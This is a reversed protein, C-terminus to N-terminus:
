WRSGVLDAPGLDPRMARLVPQRLAGGETRGLHRVDAVLVPDVWALREGFRRLTRGAGDGLRLAPDPGERQIGTLVARLVDSLAGDIGSGVTGLVEGAADAVVVSSVGEGSEARVWGVVVVSTLTRHPLKVWSPSRVGCQYRSDRRKAMVGELGQDATAALLAAGDAFETSALWAGATVAALDVSALLERRAVLPEARVDRGQWALVDFVIFRVGPGGRMTGPFSPRGAADLAACEGDLIAPAVPAALARGVEPAVVSPYRGGLDVRNRSRVTVSGDGRVLALARVGDWKVEFSWEPGMPAVIPDPPGSALMPAATRWLRDITSGPEPVVSMIARGPLQHTAM